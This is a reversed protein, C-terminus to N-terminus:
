RWAAKRKAPKANYSRAPPYDSLFNEAIDEYDINGLNMAYVMQNIIPSSIENLAEAHESEVMDKLAEALEEKAKWKGMGESAYEEVWGRIIDQYYDENDIVLAVAWTDFNTWGNYSM